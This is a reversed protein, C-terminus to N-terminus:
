KIIVKKGNVIYIGKSPNEVRMGSLNYVADDHRTEGTLVEAIGTAETTQVNSFHQVYGNATVFHINSAVIDDADPNGALINIVSGEDQLFAANNLSFAAFRYTREGVQNYVLQHGSKRASLLAQQVDAGEPLTLDFQFATYRTRSNLCLSIVNNIDKTLTVSEEGIIPRQPMGNYNPAAVGNAIKNVLAVADAVTVNMDEDFDALYEDFSVHPKGVVFKVIDVVDLMDAAGDGNVDCNPYEIWDNFTKWVSASRYASKSGLPVYLRVDGVITNRFVDSVVSLPKEWAVKFAELSRCGSFAFTGVYTVSSPLNVFTLSSCNEFAGNPLTKIGAPITVKTLLSAGSFAYQNMSTVTAPIEYDGAKAAPYTVLTTKDATFLVGDEAVFSKNTRAVSIATLSTCNSLAKNAIVTVAGPINMGKLNSCGNFAGYEISTVSNPLIIEELSTCNQFANTGIATLGTFYKLEPFNKIDSAAFFSSLAEVQKAEAVTLQKDGNLDFNEICIAKVEDDVFDITADDDLYLTFLGFDKWVDAAKYLDEFGKPVCLTANAVDVGEFTNAPVALPTRHAVTVSDLQACGRFANAGITTVSAPITVSTLNAAMLFADECIETVDNKIVYDDELVKAAPFQMLRTGSKDFLVGNISSYNANASQVNVSTLRPCGKFAGTGVKTINASLTLSTFGNNYAFASDGIETLLPLTKWGSISTGQFASNGIRKIGEPMTIATLKTDKFANDSIDELATFYQLEHLTTIQKGSFVEGLSTVAAAEDYSLQNDGDTDWASVAAQRANADAFTILTADYEAMNGENVITFFNWGQAAEYLAKSGVPVFLIGPIQGESLPEYNSFTNAPIVAPTAQSVQCRLAAPMGNFAKEGISTISQPLTLSQLNVCNIFASAGITKLSENLVLTNFGECNEFANEGITEIEHLNLTKLLSAGSFAYPRIEKVKSKTVTFDAKNKGAPYAVVATTDSTFLINELAVFTENKANVIFRTLGTCMGFAGNGISAVNKGLGVSTIGECGYFAKPGITTIAAVLTPMTLVTCGEFASAGITKVSDPIAISTLYSCGKFAGNPIERLGKFEALEKFKTIEENGAFVGTIDTVAAAEEYSLRGDGNKDWKSVCLKETKEDEFLVFLKYTAITGFEKWVDANQYDTDLGNPVNLKANAVDVGEFTNAPVKLPENWMVKVNKLAACQAFAREGINTVTADITISTLRSTGLFAEPAINVVGEPIIVSAANRYAPYQILTTLDKSFLVGSAGSSYNLNEEDVLISTLLACSKFAGNGISAVSAPVNIKKLNNCFAFANEGIATVSEPLIIQTLTSGEFASPEITTISTFYHFEDFSGIEAGKFADGLSTVAAAEDFTLYGDDDTDYLSLCLDRTKQDAFTIIKDAYDAITGEEIFSFWNWGPASAYAERTGAPVFLRGNIEGDQLAEFNSFTGASIALPTSWPVQVRIGKAVNAFAQADISSVSAPIIVTYLNNCGAFAQQGIMMLSEPLTVHSLAIAGEFAHEAIIEVNSFNVTTLTQAGAFAYPLIEKVTAPIELSKPAAACAYAVFQTRTAKDIIYTRRYTGDNHVYTDNTSSVDLNTCSTCNAFAGEGISSVNGPINVYTLSKCGDFAHAGITTLKKSFTFRQLKECGKFANNGIVQLNDQFSITTLANCGVFADRGISQLNRPFSIAELNSCGKFSSQAITKVSSFSRFETFSTIDKNGVFAAGIDTVSMAERYTLEGDGDTDWLSVCIEKVYPDVFAINIDLDDSYTKVYKFNKWVDAAKYATDYGALVYLIVGSDEDDESGSIDVGEFVSEDIPLPTVWQVKVSKLNVCGQFAYEGISLVSNPITVDTMSLCDSFAEDNIATVRYYLGNNLVRWPLVLNVPGLMDEDVIGVGPNNPGTFDKPEWGVVSVTQSQEDTVIYKIGDVTFGAASAMTAMCVTVLALLQRLHRM